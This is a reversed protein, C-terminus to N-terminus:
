MLSMSGSGVLCYKICGGLGFKFDEISSQCEDTQGDIRLGDMWEKIKEVIWWRNM